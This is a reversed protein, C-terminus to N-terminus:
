QQPHNFLLPNISQRCGIPLALCSPPPNPHAGLRIVLCRCCARFASCPLKGVAGLTHQTSQNLHTTCSQSPTSHGCPAFCRFLWPSAWQAVWTGGTSRWLPWSSRSPADVPSLQDWVHSLVQTWKACAATLSLVRWAGGNGAVVCGLTQGDDLCRTVQDSGQIVLIKSEEFNHTYPSLNVLFRQFISNRSVHLIWFQCEQQWSLTVKVAEVSDVVDILM